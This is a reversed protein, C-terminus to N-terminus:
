LTRKGKKRRVSDVFNMVGNASLKTVKVEHIGFLRMIVPIVPILPNSGCTFLDLTIVGEEPWTHFSIHSELLVGVCSVGAPQLTHCHYSLLTLQSDRVVNVMAQALRDESNLFDYEVNKLDVLLHQGSPFYEEQDPEPDVLEGLDAIHKTPHRKKYKIRQQQIEEMNVRSAGDGGMFVGEENREFSRVITPDNYGSLSAGPIGQQVHHYIWEGPGYPTSVGISFALMM